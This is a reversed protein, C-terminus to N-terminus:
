LLSLLQSLPCSHFSAMVIVAATFLPCMRQWLSLHSNASPAASLPHSGSLMVVNDVIPGYKESMSEIKINTAAGTGTFVFSMRSWTISSDTDTSNYKVKHLEMHNVTTGSVSSVKLASLLNLPGDPMRACDYQITFTKGSAPATALTTTISGQTGNTGAPNNLHVAVKSTTDFTSMKYTGSQIVSVGAGGPLWNPLITADTALITGNSTLNASEFDGDALAIRGSITKTSSPAPAPATTNSFPEIEEDAFQWGTETEILDSDLDAETASSLSFGCVLVAWVLVVWATM